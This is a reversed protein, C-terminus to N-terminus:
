VYERMKSADGTLGSPPDKRNRSGRCSPRGRRAVSAAGRVSDAAEM